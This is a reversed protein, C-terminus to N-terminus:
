QKCLFHVKNINKMLSYVDLIYKKDFKQYMDEYKTSSSCLRTALQAEFYLVNFYSSCAICVSKAISKFRCKFELLNNM